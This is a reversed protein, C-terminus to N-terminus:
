YHYILSSYGETYGERYPLYGPSSKLSGAEFLHIRYGVGMSVDRQLYYNIHGSIETKKSADTGFGYVFEGGTDWRDWIPFHIYTGAKLLDYQDAFMGDGSNRYMEYGAFLSVQLARALGFPFGPFFRRHYRFEMDKASSAGKASNMSFVGAKLSGEFGNAGMWHHVRIGLQTAIPNTSGQYAQEKSQLTFMSGEVAVDSSNYRDNLYKPPQEVKISSTGTDAPARVPEIKKAIVPRKMVPLSVATPTPSRRGFADRSYANVKYQGVETPTWDLKLGESTTVVRGTLDVVELTQSKSHSGADFEMSFAEGVYAHPPAKALRPSEAFPPEFVVIKQVGSWDSLETEQAVTRFRYFYVGPKRFRFTLNPTSSWFTRTAAKAFADSNSTQSVFGTAAVPSTLNMKLVAEDGLLPIREPSAITPAASDLFKSDLTFKVTPSWRAGDPSVRWYHDGFSLTSIALTSETSDFKMAGTMTPDDSFEVTSKTGPAAAPKWGLVVNRNVTKPADKEIFETGNQAYLDNLKWTYYVVKDMEDPVPIKAEVPTPAVVPPPTAKVIKTPKGKSQIEVSGSLTKFVPKKDKDLTVQLDANDGNLTVIEGNMAVKASGQIHIKFTGSVLDAVKESEIQRFVVLSNEAIAVHGGNKLTVRANSTNSTFISDGLRLKQKQEARQWAMEQASRFRIDNVSEDIIGVEPKESDGEQFWSEGYQLYFFALLLVILSGSIVRKEFAGLNKWLEM